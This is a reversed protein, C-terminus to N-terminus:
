RAESIVIIIDDSPYRDALPKFINFNSLRYKSSIINYFERVEEKDGFYINDNGYGEGANIATPKKINQMEPYTSTLDHYLNEARRRVDPNVSSKDFRNYYIGVRVQQIKGQLEKAKQENKLQNEKDTATKQELDIVNEARKLLEVKSCCDANLHDFIINNDEIKSIQIALQNKLSSATILAQKKDIGERKSFNVIQYYMAQAIHTPIFKDDLDNIIKRLFNDCNDFDNTKLNYVAHILLKEGKIFNDKNDDILQLENMLNYKDYNETKMAIAAKYVLAQSKVNEDKNNELEDKIYSLANQYLEPKMNDRIIALRKNNYFEPAIESNFVWENFSAINEPLRAVFNIIFTLIAIWIALRQSSRLPKFIVKNVKEKIKVVEELDQINGELNKLTQILDAIKLRAASERDEVKKGKETAVIMGYFDDKKSEIDKATAKLKELSQKISLDIDEKEEGEQRFNFLLFITEKIKEFVKSIM